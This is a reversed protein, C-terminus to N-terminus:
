KSAGRDKVSCRFPGFESDEIYRWGSSLCCREGCLHVAPACDNVRVFPVIPSFTRSWAARLHVIHDTLLRSRRDALNVTFFYTGGPIYLRRYDPM